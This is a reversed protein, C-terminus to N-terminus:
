RSYLRAYKDFAGFNEMVTYKRCLQVTKLIRQSSPLPSRHRSRTSIPRIHFAVHYRQLWPLAAYIGVVAPLNRSTSTASPASRSWSVVEVGIRLAM